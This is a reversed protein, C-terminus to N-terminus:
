FLSDLSQYASHLLEVSEKKKKVDDGKLVEGLTLSADYLKKAAADYKDANNGLRTKLADRSYNKIAEAKTILTGSMASIESFKQDPLLKHYIVYLTQHFEDIEKTAPRIVRAMKEYNSHLSEAASLLSNNDNSVSADYYKQASSNLEALQKKWVAEKDRLIGTLKVKNISEMSSKIQPVFGKLAKFDKAPYADHWIPYIVEHFASLEPVSSAIESPDVKTQSYSKTTFFLVSLLLSSVFLKKMSNSINILRDQNNSFKTKKNLIYNARKIALQLGKRITRQNKLNM